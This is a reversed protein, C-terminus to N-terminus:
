NAERDIKLIEIMMTVTSSFILTGCISFRTVDNPMLSISTYINILIYGVNVTGDYQQTASCVDGFPTSVLPPVVSM